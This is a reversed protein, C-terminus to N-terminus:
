NSLDLDDSRAPNEYASMRENQFDELYARQAIAMARQSFDADGSAEATQHLITMLFGKKETTSVRAKDVARVAELLSEQLATNAAVDGAAAQPGFELATLAALNINNLVGLEQERTEVVRETALVHSLTSRFWHAEKDALKLISTRLGAGDEDQRLSAAAIEDIGLTAGPSKAMAMERIIAAGIIFRSADRISLQKDM